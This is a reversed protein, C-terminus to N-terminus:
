TGDHMQPMKYYALSVEDAGTGRDYFEAGHSRKPDQMDGRVPSIGPRVAANRSQGSRQCATQTPSAVVNSKARGVHAVGVRPQGGRPL